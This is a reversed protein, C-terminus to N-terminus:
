QSVGNKPTTAIERNGIDNGAGRTGCAAWHLSYRLYVHSVGNKPTTAIETKGVDNRCATRWFRRPILHQASRKKEDSEKGYDLPSSTDTNGNFSYVM